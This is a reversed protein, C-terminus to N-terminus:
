ASVVGFPARVLGSGRWAASEGYEEAEEQNEAFSSFMSWTFFGGVIERYSELAAQSLEVGRFIVVERRPTVPYEFNLDEWALRVCDAPDCSEKVAKVRCEPTPNEISKV